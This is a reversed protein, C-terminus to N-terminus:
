RDKEQASHAANSIVDFSIQFKLWMSLHLQRKKSWECDMGVLYLGNEYGVVLSLVKRYTHPCSSICNQLMSNLIQSAFTHAQTYTYTGPHPPGLHSTDDHL